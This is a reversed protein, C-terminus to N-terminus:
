TQKNKFILHKIFYYFRKLEYGLYTENELRLLHYKDTKTINEWERKSIM